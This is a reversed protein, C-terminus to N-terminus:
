VGRSRHVIDWDWHVEGSPAKGQVSCVLLVESPVNSLYLSRELVAGLLSDSFAVVTIARAVKGGFAQVGPLRLSSLGIDLVVTSSM